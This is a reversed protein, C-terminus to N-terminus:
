DQHEALEKRDFHPFADPIEKELSVEAERDVILHNVRVNLSDEKSKRLMELLFGGFAVQRAVQKATSNTSNVLVEISGNDKITIQSGNGLCKLDTIRNNSEEQFDLDILGEEKLKTSVEQERLPFYKRFAEFLQTKEQKICSLLPFAQKMSFKM